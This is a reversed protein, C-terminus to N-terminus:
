IIVKTKVHEVYFIFCTYYQAIIWFIDMGGGSDSPIKKLSGGVRQFNWKLKM